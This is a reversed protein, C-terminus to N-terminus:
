RALRRCPFPLDDCVVVSCTDEPEREGSGTSPGQQWPHCGALVEECLGQPLLAEPLLPADSFSPPRASLVGNETGTPESQNLDAATLQNM